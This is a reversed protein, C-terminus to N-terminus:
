TFDTFIELVFVKILEPICHHRDKLLKRLPDEDKSSELAEHYSRILMKEVCLHILMKNYLLSFVKM